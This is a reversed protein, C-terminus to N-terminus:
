LTSYYFEYRCLSVIFLFPSIIWLSSFGAGQIKSLCLIILVLFIFQSCCTSVAKSSAELVQSKIEKREDESLSESPQGDLNPANGGEMAGYDTGNEAETNTTEDLKETAYAQAEAYKQCQNHCLYYSMVFFPTFVLWWSLNTGGDLRILLLILFM